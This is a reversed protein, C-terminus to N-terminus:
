GMALRRAHRFRERLTRDMVIQGLTEAIVAAVGMVPLVFVLGTPGAVEAGLFLMLVSLVPHLHLSRGITHPLFVFDDLIRVGFFLLVCGYTVGPQNPFDTAAVLVVIVCGVASGVYPVWALVAALLGLLLPSSLGFCWLGFALCITDLFTLKMLGVFFSQLSNDIRDFLLLTKEFYANPVSRVLKKKFHNGDQLLFYTLYPMLLLSPLWHVMDLLINGLYKEALQQTVTNLNLPTTRLAALPALSPFRDVLVQETTTLFDLGGQLYHAVTSKWGAARASAVPLAVVLALVTALFLIGAVARAATRPQLGARVLRIALPRTCYYVVLATLGPIVLWLVKQFVLLLVCTAVIAAVWTPLSVERQESM